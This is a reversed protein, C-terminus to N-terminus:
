KSSWFRRSPPTQAQHTRSSELLTPLQCLKPSFPKSTWILGLLALAPAHCGDHTCVVSCHLVASCPAGAVKIDVPRHLEAELLKGLAITYPHNLQLSPVAGNTLSDGVALVRVAENCPTAAVFGASISLLVVQLLHMYLQM